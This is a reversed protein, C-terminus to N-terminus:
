KEFGTSLGTEFIGGSREYFEGDLHYLGRRATAWPAPNQGMMHNWHQYNQGGNTEILGVKMGPFLPLRSALNQNWAVLTPNVTLDACFCPVGAEAARHAMQLTLSLTKAIPKLAFAKYGLTLLREVDELRHASEDAAVRVPLDGVPLPSGEPFPEELILIHELMGIERAGALLEDLEGRTEYRGNLDLYYAIRGTETANTKLPQALQHIGALREKDWALRAKPDGNGQPDSGLKIKLVGHGEELLEAVASLTMGYPVLPIAMLSSQRCSLDTQYPRPVMGVFDKEGLAAGYLLWAALDLGVLSNLVFTERLDSLGSLLRAEKRAVPLIKELHDFPNSWNLTSGWQGAKLGSLFMMANGGAEGAGELVRADSWLVSQTTFGRARHHPSRLNAAGQWLESVYAGKFGFPAKLPERVFNAGEFKYNLNVPDREWLFPM